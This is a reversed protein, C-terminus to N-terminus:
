HGCWWYRWFINVFETRVSLVGPEYPQHSVASWDTYLGTTSYAPLAQHPKVVEASRRSAPKTRRPTRQPNQEGSKIFM